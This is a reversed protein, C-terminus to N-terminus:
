NESESFIDLHFMERFAENAVDVYKDKSLHFTVGHSMAMAVQLKIFSEHLTLEYKEIINNKKLCNNLKQLLEYFKGQNVNKGKFIFQEVFEEFMLVMENYVEKNLNQIVEKPEFIMHFFKDASKRPIDDFLNMFFDLAKNKFIEDISIMIGFDIIGLKYIPKESPGEKIFLINGAHLDGHAFGHHMTCVSGFKVVLKSYIDYDESLVKEIPVGEIFEMMIVDNCKQTVEEYVDPIKVYNINKCNKKMRQMNKVEEKFDLQQYIFDINAKITKHIDFTNFIPIPFFSLIKLFFLVDDLSNSLIKEINNRKVKLVVDKNDINRKMKYVLSITGSNIPSYINATLDNEEIIKELLSINVDTKNYPANDSYKL